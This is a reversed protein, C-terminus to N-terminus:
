KIVEKISEYFYDSTTHTDKKFQEWEEMTMDRKALNEFVTLYQLNDINNSGGKSKPIIHDVSPKAWDYFTNTKEEQLWFNYLINFQEQYYFNNILKKYNEKDYESFNGIATRITRHIFLFKDFDDFSDLFEDELDKIMNTAKFADRKRLCGWSKTMRASLLNRQRVIVENGCDCRCLWAREKNSWTREEKPILKIAVLRGFRQGTIDKGRM